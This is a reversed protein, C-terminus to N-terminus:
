NKGMIEKSIGENEFRRTNKKEYLMDSHLIMKYEGKLEESLGAIAEVNIDSGVFSLTIKKGKMLGIGKVTRVPIDGMDDDLRDFIERTVIVVPYDCEYLRNGSDYFATVVFPEDTLVMVEYLCDDLSKRKIVAGYIYRALAGLVACSGLLCFPYLQIKGDYSMFDLPTFYALFISIGALVFSFLLFVILNLLYKRVSDAKVAIYVMLPALLIKVLYNYNGIFPYLVSFLSGVTSSILLRIASIKERRMCLTVFLLFFNLAFNDLFIYELYVEM